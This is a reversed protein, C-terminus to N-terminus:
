TFLQIRSDCNTEEPLLAGMLANNTSEHLRNFKIGDAVAFAPILVPHKNYASCLLM